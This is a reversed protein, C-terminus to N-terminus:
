YKGLYSNLAFFNNLALSTTNCKVVFFLILAASNLFLVIVLVGLLIEAAVVDANASFVIKAFIICSLLVRIVIQFFGNLNWITGSFIISSYRKFECDKLNLRIPIVGCFNGIQNAIEVNRLTKRSLM